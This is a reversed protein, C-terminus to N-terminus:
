KQKKLVREYEEIPMPRYYLFGQAIRCGMKKLLDAQAKTEVGEVVMELGLQDAMQTVSRLIIDARKDNRSVPLFKIDIKLIDVSLERLANLSSYGSGFDDMLVRFHNKQLQEMLQNLHINDVAFASETIEFEILDHPVSYREVCTMIDNLIRPSYLNSRSLNVSVPKAELGKDLWRRIMKCVQELMYFDIESIFGNGEFIPVFDVPSIVGKTPHIWRVLAESGVIRGTIMDVKPQLYIHFQDSGLANNMEMIVNQEAYEKEAIKDDFVAIKNMYNNKVRQAIAARDVMTVVPIREQKDKETIIYIGFSMVMEFNVPYHNMSTQISDIVRYISEMDSSMCVAFIDSTLHCYTYLEESDMCEQLKVGLFRLVNDGESTGYFENLLRFKRIDMRVIAYEREPHNKLLEWTQMSFTNINPLQTLSDVTVLSKLEHVAELEKEANTFVLVIRDKEGDEDVYYLVSIRFWEYIHPVVYLRINADRQVSHTVGSFDVLQQYLPLDRKFVTKYFAHEFDTDLSKRDFDVFHGDEPYIELQGTKYSYEAIFTHTHELLLEERTMSHDLLKEKLEENGDM